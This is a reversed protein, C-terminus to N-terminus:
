ALWWTVALRGSRTCARLDGKKVLGATVADPLRRATEHRELGCVVTLEASTMGPHKRVAAAVIELHRQRAGSRTVEEAALHSSLDDTSRAAPTEVRVPQSQAFDMALQANM